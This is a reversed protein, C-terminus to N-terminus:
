SFYGILWLFLLHDLFSLFQTHHVSKIGAPFVSAPLDKSSPALRTWMPLELVALAVCCLSGTEFFFTITVSAM